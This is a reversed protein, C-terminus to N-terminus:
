FRQLPTHFRGDHQHSSLSTLMVFNNPTTAAIATKVAIKM